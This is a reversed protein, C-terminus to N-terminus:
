PKGEEWAWADSQEPSPKDPWYRFCQRLMEPVGEMCRAVVDPMTWEFLRRGYSHLSEAFVPRGYAVAEEVTMPKMDPTRELLDAIYDVTGACAHALTPYGDCLVSYMERLLAARERNTMGSM